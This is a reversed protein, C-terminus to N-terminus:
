FKMLGKEILGLAGIFLPIVETKTQWRGEIEIELDKYKSLKEVVKISSNRKWWKSPPTGSLHYPWM